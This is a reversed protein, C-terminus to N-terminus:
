SAVVSFKFFTKVGGGLFVSYESVIMIKFTLNLGTDTLFKSSTEEAKIYVTFFVDSLMCATM